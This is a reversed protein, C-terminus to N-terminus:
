KVRSLVQQLAFLRLKRDNDGGFRGDKFEPFKLVITQGVHPQVRVEPPSFWSLAKTHAVVQEIDDGTVRKESGNAYRVMGETGRTSLLMGLGMSTRVVDGVGAKAWPKKVTPPSWPKVNLLKHAEAESVMKLVPGKGKVQVDHFTLPYQAYANGLVSYNTKLIVHTRLTTKDTFTVKVDGEFVGASFGGQLLECTYNGKALLLDLIKLNTKQIFNKIIEDAEEVSEARLRQDADAQFTVEFQPRKPKKFWAQYKHYENEAPGERWDREPADPHTTFNCIRSMYSSASRLDESDYGQHESPTGRYLLMKCGWKRLWFEAGTENPKRERMFIALREKRQEFDWEIYKQRHTTLMKKVEGDFNALVNQCEKIRQNLLEDKTMIMQERLLLSM